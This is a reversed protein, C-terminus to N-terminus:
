PHSRERLFLAFQTDSNLIHGKWWSALFRQMGAIDLTGDTAAILLETLRELYESHQEIQVDLGPYGQAALIKEETRFHTEAYVALDNLLSHFALRGSRSDFDAAASAKQCLVLFERHQEDLVPHGVSYKPDWLFANEMTPPFAIGRMPAEVKMLKFGEDDYRIGINRQLM